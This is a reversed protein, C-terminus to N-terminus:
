SPASAKLWRRYAKDGPVTVILKFIGNKGKSEEPLKVQFLYL